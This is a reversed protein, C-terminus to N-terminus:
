FFLMKATGAASARLSITSANTAGDGSYVIMSVSKGVEIYGIPARGLGHVIDTNVNATIFLANVIKVDLNKNVELRGNVVNKVDAMFLQIYRYLDPPKIDTIDTPRRILAM